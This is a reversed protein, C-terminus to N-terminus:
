FRYGVSINLAHNLFRYRGDASEGILSPASGSVTRWQSTLMQYTAAWSWHNAKQGVGFSFSHQDTDPVAPNFNKDPVSHESFFYGGSAFYGGKLYRTAGVGYMFSSKFNFPFPASGSPMQFTVTNLADWDTWDVDVEFNWRENPRFSIGTMVFQPFPVAADTSLKNPGTGPTRITSHGHFTFETASHYSAGMSWQPHPKWLVGGTYGFGIGDGKFKFDDGPVQLGRRLLVHGGNITPGVAVSLQPLVEWAVVPALRVYALRGEETLTRFGSDEPWELGLGYPAFAGIGFSLPREKPSFAYYFQPVPSVEFETDSKKGDPSHYRSDVTIAYLGFQLNHGELQTIGAPNYYIAAPNDATAAFANGRAIAVPDQNPLRFGVGFSPISLVVTLASILVAFSKNM